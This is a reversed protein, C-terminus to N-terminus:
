AIHFMAVICQTKPGAAYMSRCRTYSAGLSTHLPRQATLVMRPIKNNTRVNAHVIRTTPHHKCSHATHTEWLTITAHGGTRGPKAHFTGLNKLQVHTSTWPNSRSTSCCPYPTWYHGCLMANRACRSGSWLRKIKKEGVLGVLMTHRHKNRQTACPWFANNTRGLWM